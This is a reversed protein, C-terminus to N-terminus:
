GCCQAVKNCFNEYSKKYEAMKSNRIEYWTALYNPDHVLKNSCSRLQELWRPDELDINYDSFGNKRSFDSVKDQTSLYLSPINAGISILQGHGRMAIVYDYDYYLKLFEMVNDLNAQKMFNEKSVVWASKDLGVNTWDYDKPTHPIVACGQQRIFASIYSVNEGKGFRGWLLRSDGNWAPQFLGRAFHNLTVKDKAPTLYMLGPDPIEEVATANDIAETLIEKSGDNRVSFLASKDILSDVADIGRANLKPIGRFHNIGVSFGVVPITLGDLTEPAFPLKYGTDFGENYVGGEILGGGGIVLLDNEGSIKKFRETSYKINNRVNHFDLISVPTWTIPKKYAMEIGKRVNYLAINDGINIGYSGFHAIKM